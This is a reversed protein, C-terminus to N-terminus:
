RGQSSAPLPHRPPVPRQGGTKGGSTVAPKWKKTQSGLQSLAYQQQGWTRGRGVAEVLSEDTEENLCAGAVPLAYGQVGHHKPGKGDVEILAALHGAVKLDEVFQAQYKFPVVSDAPDALAFIRRDERRVITILHSSPDYTRQRLATKTPQHGKQTLWDYEQDVVETVGSGLVDCHVDRRGLTLLSAAITAGGSQGALAIDDFGLKQKLSDVVANMVFTEKPRRRDGHNGSSGHVGLRSVYIYRVRLRDAWAQMVKTMLKMHKELKVPDNYEEKPVDGDFFLVAQRRSEFGKTVFYAICETGFKTTVFIRNGFAECILKSQGEAVLVPRYIATTPSPTTTIHLSLLASAGIVAAVVTIARGSLKASLM